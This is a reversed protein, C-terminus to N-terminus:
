EIPELIRLSNYFYMKRKSGFLVILSCTNINSKKIVIIKGIDNIQRDYVRQNIYFIKDNHKCYLFTM